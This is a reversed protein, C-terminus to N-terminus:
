GQQDAIYQLIRLRKQETTHNDWTQQHQEIHYSIQGTPLEIFVVPWDPEKPDIRIGADFGCSIALSLAQYLFYARNKYREHQDERQVELLKNALKLQTDSM